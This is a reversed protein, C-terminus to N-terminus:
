NTAYAQFSIAFVTYKTLIEYISWSRDIDFYRVTLLAELMKLHGFYVAM